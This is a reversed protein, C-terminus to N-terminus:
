IFKKKTDTDIRIIRIPKLYRNRFNFLLGLKIDAIQLYRQMRYYEQKGIHQKSKLELIIKGDIVFDFVNNSGQFAFERRYPICLEKLRREIADGYQRERAYRGLENHVDFCIGTISYSLEPCILKSNKNTNNTHMLM